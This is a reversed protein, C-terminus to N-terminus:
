IAHYLNRRKNPHYLLVCVKRGIDVADTMSENSIKGSGLDYKFLAIM